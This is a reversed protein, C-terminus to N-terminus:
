RPLRIQRDAPEDAPRYFIATHGIRGAMECGLEEVIRACLAAKQDRHELFKVKVLEHRALAERLNRLVGEGLGAKGIHVLPDLSHALGRLYKRQAGTLNMM